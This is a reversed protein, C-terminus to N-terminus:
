IDEVEVEELDEEEEETADDSEETEEENSDDDEEEEAAEEFKDKPFFDVPRSRITTKSDKTYEDDEVTAGVIDGTLSQPDFSVAKGAVNKGKAAHILNRLNWLSKPSLSTITYLTGGAHKKGGVGRVIQFRWNVYDYEEGDQWTGEMIKLLYDGEPVRKSRRRGRIEEPVGGFDVKRKAM